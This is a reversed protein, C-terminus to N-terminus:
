CEISKYSMQDQATNDNNDGKDFSTASDFDAVLKSINLESLHVTNEGHADGQENEDALMSLNTVANVQLTTINLGGDTKKENKISEAITQEMTADIDKTNVAGLLKVLKLDVDDITSNASKSSKLSQDNHEVSSSDDNDNDNDNDDGNDNESAQIQILQIHKMFDNTEKLSMSRSLIDKFKKSDIHGNKNNSSDGIMELVELAKIQIEQKSGLITQLRSLTKARIFDKFTIEGKNSPDMMSMIRNAAKEASIEDMNEIKTQMFYVIDNTTVIGYGSRDIKRFQLKFFQKDADSM